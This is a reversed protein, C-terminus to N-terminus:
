KPSKKSALSRALQLVAARDEPSLDGYATLLSGEEDDGDFIILDSLPVSFVQCLRDMMPHSPKKKGSEMESVHSKSAGLMEALADQTWGRGSRLEKIRTKM